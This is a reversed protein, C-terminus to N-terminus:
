APRDPGFVRWPGVVRVALGRPGAVVATRLRLATALVLGGLPFAAFLCGLVSWALPHGFVSVLALTVVAVVALLVLCVGAVVGLARRALSSRGLRWELRPVAGTVRDPGVQVLEVQGAGDTTDM